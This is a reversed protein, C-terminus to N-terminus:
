KQTILPYSDFHNIIVNLDKISQILYQVSDKRHNIVIGVGGFFTQILELLAQDNKHLTIVFKPEVSWGTKVKSTKRISIHFSSEEDAFGTVFYPDILNNEKFSSTSIIEKKNVGNIIFSNWILM